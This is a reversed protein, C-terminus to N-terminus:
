PSWQALGAELPDAHRDSRKRGAKWGYHDINQLDLLHQKVKKRLAISAIPSLPFSSPEM